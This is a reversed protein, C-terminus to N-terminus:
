LPVSFDMQESLDRADEQFDFRGVAHAVSTKLNKDFIGSIVASNSRGTNKYIPKNTENSARNSDRKAWTVVASKWCKMKAKAQGVVWGNSEYHAFFTEPDINYNKSLCFDTIEQLSPKSFNINNVKTKKVKEINHEKHETDTRYRNQEPPTVTVTVNNTILWANWISETDKNLFAYRAQQPTRGAKGSNCSKCATALNQIDDNGGLQTPYIHDICINEASGCYVCKHNDRAMVTVSHKTYGNSSLGMSKRNARYKQVREASSDSVFQRKDWNIIANSEDIFGKSVFLAKTKGWSEPDVRLLFSIEDDSLLADGNCRTCLIMVLRRQDSESMMQVKPDTSFESYLRFWANAM